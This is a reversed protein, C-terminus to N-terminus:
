IYPAIQEFITANINHVSVINNYLLPLVFDLM